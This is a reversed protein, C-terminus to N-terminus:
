WLGSASARAFRASRHPLLVLSLLLMETVAAPAASPVAAGKEFIRVTTLMVTALPLNYFIVDFSMLRRNSIAIPLQPMVVVKGAV